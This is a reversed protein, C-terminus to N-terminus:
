LAPYSIDTYSGRKIQVAELCTLYTNCTLSSDIYFSFFSDQPCTWVLGNLQWPGLLHRNPGFFGPKPCRSYLRCLPTGIKPLLGYKSKSWISCSRRWGEEDEKHCESSRNQPCHDLPASPPKQPHPPIQITTQPSGAQNSQISLLCHYAHRRRHPLFDQRYTDLGRSVKTQHHHRQHHCHHRNYHHHHHHYQLSGPTLTKAFLHLQMGAFQDAEKSRSGMIIMIIIIVIM